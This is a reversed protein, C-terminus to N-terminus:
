SPLILFPPEQSPRNDLFASPKAQHVTQVFGVTNTLFSLGFPLAGHFHLAVTSATVEIWAADGFFSGAALVEVPLIRLPELEGDTL